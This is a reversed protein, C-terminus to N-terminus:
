RRRGKKRAKRQAKRKKRLTAREAPSMTPGEDEVGGGMMGALPHSAMGRQQSAMARRGRRTQMAGAGMMNGMQAMAQRAMLFRQYFAEVDELTRGCGRAIRRLRSDTMVDPNRREEMTMSQIVAEVKKLERDDTAEEPLQGMMDSMGPMRAMVEKLPGLRQIMKLQKLFGEFTLQGSLIDQADAEAEEKDVVDEFDRMLGVVDGMGLIRSALGEARFPELRDMGEGLGIYKVTKGTVARISLAAGGRADGDMKTLIFGTFDLRRDFEAATRVADQGIMADCVFLINQPETRERIKVLEGMLENDIALRGATDFLVVDHHHRKAHFLAQECLPVPLLGPITFVPVEIQEGLTQLQDIAGPRYIDAAVLLPNRGEAKLLRALKGATTTKGSGQLGVMMIITPQGTMDLAEDGGGMLAVLTDHCIKVFHDAPTVEMGDRRTKTRLNVVEGLARERVQDLFSRVVGLEVDAELLSVRVERLADSINEESLQAKGQLKLRAKRFGNTLSELM